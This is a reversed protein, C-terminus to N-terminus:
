ASEFKEALRAWVEVLRAMAISSLPGREVYRAADELQELTSVGIVTSSVGQHGAAFRISAEALTEAHGEEVLFGFRRALRLDEDYSGGSAIPDVTPAANAPREAFGSLAGGALVRVALVGIGAAAAREILRGYDPFPFGGPAHVGATPNLLNYCVQMTHLDLGICSLVAAPEGLGNIGWARVKGENRLRAFTGLVTAVDDISLWQRALDRVRAVFNHLQILDIRDRRLRKLSAEVSRRVAAEIDGMEEARLRVKTGVLAECGTGSLVMGLNAESLGDAYLAATDFYNVGLELARAVAREMEERTGRVLIGGVAGCGFGIASVELDTRGLRVRRM